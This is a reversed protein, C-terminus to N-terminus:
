RVLTRTLPGLEVACADARCQLDKSSEEVRFEAQLRQYPKPILINVGLSECLRM